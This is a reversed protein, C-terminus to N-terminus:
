AGGGNERGGGVRKVLRPAPHFRSPGARDPGRYLLPSLLVQSM